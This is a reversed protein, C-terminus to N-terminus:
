RGLGSKHSEADDSRRVLVIVGMRRGRRIVTRVVMVRGPLREGGGVGGLRARGTSGGGAHLELPEGGLARGIRLEGVM